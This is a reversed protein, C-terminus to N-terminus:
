KATTTASPMRRNNPCTAKWHSFSGCLFCAGSRWGVQGRVAGYSAQPRFFNASATSAETSQNHDKKFRKAQGEAATKRQKIKRAARNESRTIKNDDDDDTALEHAEYESVTAWGYLSSDALKILKQRYQIKKLAEGLKNAEESGEALKEQASKVLEEIERYICPSVFSLVFFRSFSMDKLCHSYWCCVERLCVSVWFLFLFDLSDSTCCQVQISSGVGQRSM